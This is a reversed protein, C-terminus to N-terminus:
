KGAGAKLSELYAVVDGRDRDSNIGAFTMFTGPAYARPNKLFADLNGEAWAGNHAKLAASYNYGPVSAIPREEVGFLNPGVRTPGGQNLTHCAACARQALTQGHNPDAGPPPALAATVASGAPESLGAVPGTAGEGPSAKPDSSPGTANSPV